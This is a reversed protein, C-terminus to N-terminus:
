TVSVEINGIEVKAIENYAISLNSTGTPSPNLGIFLSDVQHGPVSNIPTYLRSYIVNDGVISNSNIYDFIASRIQEVGDAPFGEYSTVSVSVYIDVYSPRQYKVEKENGLVDEILYTSNGHTTIGAPRNRWITEAIENDLGGQVLVMFAHPPIGLADVTNTLNEYIRVAEVGDLSILDSYLADVINSGRTYKSENFRQRLESDTERFSGVVAPAFQTISDWGFIPTSITDITGTEQEIPGQETCAVTTGKTIKSFFLNSSLSFSSQTVLDDAQIKLSAGEVTATLVSGFNNNVADALGNLIELETADADSTYSLVVPSSGSTYTISYTTNNAITQVKINTGVVNNEDLVVDAPIAFRNNTYSSSVLSGETITINYNGTVLIRATSSTAGKRVIGSFAVLNDLAVGSASNPDFALYVEQLAEWLDTQSPGLLAILRGLTSASSTDLVDGQPVLDGFITNAEAKLEDIIDTLRKIELGQDTLGAM